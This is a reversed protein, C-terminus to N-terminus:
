SLKLITDALKDLTGDNKLARLREALEVFERLKTVEKDHDDSLFFKRVDGCEKLLLNAETGIAMRTMRYDTLIKESQLLWDVWSKQMSDTHEDLFKRAEMSRIALDISNDKLRDVKKNITHALTAAFEDKSSIHEIQGNGIDRDGTGLKETSTNM